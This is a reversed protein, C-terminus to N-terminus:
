PCQMEESLKQLCYFDQELSCGLLAPAQEKDQRKLPFEGDDSKNASFIAALPFAHNLYVNLMSLACIVGHQNIIQAPKLETVADFVHKTHHFSQEWQVKM